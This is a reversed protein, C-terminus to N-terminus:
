TMELHPFNEGNKNITMKSKTSGLLKKTQPKLLQPYYWREIRFTISNEIKNVHIRKSPNNTKEGHKKLYIWFRRSYRISFKIWSFFYINWEM